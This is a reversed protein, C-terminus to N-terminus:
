ASDRCTFMTMTVIETDERRVLTANLLFRSIMYIMVSDKATM